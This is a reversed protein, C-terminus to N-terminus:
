FAFYDKDSIRKIEYNFPTLVDRVKGLYNENWAEFIINPHYRKLTDTAGKLVNSEAGEVDIKILKIDRICLDSLIDDLRRAKIKVKDHKNIIISHQGRRIPNLYLDLDRNDSFCAVNELLVNELKNLEVNKKLVKFNYKEPEITVVEGTNKLRKGVIVTYKGINAGIDIFVGKNLNFYERTETKYSTSGCLVSFINDGCFFIGDKNKLTVDFILHNPNKCLFHLPLTFFHFFIAIKSKLSYGEKILILYEKVKPIKKM